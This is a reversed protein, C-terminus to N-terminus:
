IEISKKVTRKVEERSGREVDRGEKVWRYGRGVDGLIVVGM